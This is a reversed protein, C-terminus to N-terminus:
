RQKKKEEEIEIQEQKDDLFAVIIYAVLVINAVLAAFGGAYAANGALEDHWDLTAQDRPLFPSVESFRM